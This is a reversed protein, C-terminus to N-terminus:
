TKQKNEQEYFHRKLNEVAFTCVKRKIKKIESHSVTM